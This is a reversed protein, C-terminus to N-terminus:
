EIIINKFNDIKYKLLIEPKITSVCYNNNEDRLEKIPILSFVWKNIDTKVNIKKLHILSILVYDFENISYAIHGTTNKDLNKKSHRRTTEFHVGTSYPNLGKVQRLKSQIRYYKNKLKDFIILDFGPSNNKMEFVRPCEDDDSSWVNIKKNLKLLDRQIYQNSLAMIKGWDITKANLIRKNLLLAYDEPDICKNYDDPTSSSKMVPKASPMGACTSKNLDSNSKNEINLEEFPLNIDPSSKEKSEINKESDGTSEDSSSSESESEYNEDHNDRYNEINKKM